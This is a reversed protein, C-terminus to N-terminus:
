NTTQKVNTLETVKAPIGGGHKVATITDLVLIDDATAVHQRSQCARGLYWIAMRIESEKSTAYPIMLQALSLAHRKQAVKVYHIPKTGSNPDTNVRYEIGLSRLISCYREILRSSTNTLNLALSSVYRMGRRKSIRKVRLVYVCGEGDFVGTLWAIDSNNIM